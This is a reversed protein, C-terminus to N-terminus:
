ILKIILGILAWLLGSPVRGGAIDNLLEGFTVGIMVILLVVTTALLTWFWERFIYRQLINM